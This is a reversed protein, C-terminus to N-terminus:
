RGEAGEALGLLPCINETFDLKKWNFDAGFYPLKGIAALTIQGRKRIPNLPFYASM